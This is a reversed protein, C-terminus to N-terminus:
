EGRMMRSAQDAEVGLVNSQWQGNVKRFTVDDLTTKSTGGVYFDTRPVTQTYAIFCNYSENEQETCRLDTVDTTGRRNATIIDEADSKSPGSGCAALPVFALAFLLKKM